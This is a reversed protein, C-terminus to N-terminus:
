GTPTSSSFQTKLMSFQTFLEERRHQFRLYMGNLTKHWGDVLDAAYEIAETSDHQTDIGAKILQQAESKLETKSYAPDKSHTVVHNYLAGSRRKTRRAAESKLESAVDHWKTTFASLTYMFGSLSANASYLLSLDAPTMTTPMSFAPPSALQAKDKEFEARLEPILLQQVEADLSPIVIRIKM